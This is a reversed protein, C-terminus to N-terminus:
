NLDARDTESVIWINAKLLLKATFSHWLLVFHCFKRLHMVWSGHVYSALDWTTWTHQLVWNRLLAKRLCCLNKRGLLLSWAAIFFNPSSYYFFGGHAMSSLSFWKSVFTPAWLRDPTKKKVSQAVVASLAQPTKLGLSLHISITRTKCKFVCMKLYWPLPFFSYLHWPLQPLFYLTLIVKGLFWNEFVRMVRLNSKKDSNHNQFPQLQCFQWVM